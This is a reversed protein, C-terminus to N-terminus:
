DEKLLKVIALLIFGILVLLFFLTGLQLITLSPNPYSDLPIFLYGTALFLCLIGFLIAGGTLIWMLLKAANKPQQIGMARGIEEKIAVRLEDILAKKLEEDAGTKLPEIYNRTVENIDNKLEDGSM